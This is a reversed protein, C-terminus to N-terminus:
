SLEPHRQRIPTFFGASVVLLGLGGITLLTSQTGLFQALSTFFVAGLSGLAFQIIWFVSTVRGLLYNPPLKRIVKYL